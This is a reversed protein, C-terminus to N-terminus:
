GDHIKFGVKLTVQFQDVANGAVRGRIESVEFWELDEVSSAARSLAIRVADEISEKSTGVIEIKKHVFSM